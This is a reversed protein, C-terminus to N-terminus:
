SRPTAVAHRKQYVMLMRIGPFVVMGVLWPDDIVAAPGGMM